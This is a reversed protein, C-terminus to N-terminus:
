GCGSGGFEIQVTAAEDVPRTIRVLYRGAELEVEVPFPVEDVPEEVVDDYIDVLIPPSGCGGECRKLEIGDAQAKTGAVALVYYTGANEIDLTRYTWIEGDRPGLVDDGECVVDVDVSIDEDPLCHDFLPVAVGCMAEANRYAAQACTPTAAYEAQLESFGGAFDAGLAAEVEEASAGFDVTDILDMAASTGMETDLFAVFHGALAYYGLPLSGDSSSEIAEAPNGEPEGRGPGRADDGLFEALGEELFPHSFGVEAHVAHVLEHEQPIVRSFVEQNENTCAVLGESEGSKCRGSLPLEGSDAGYYYYDVLGNGPTALQQQLAGILADMYVLNGGCVSDLDGGARLHEGEWAIAPLPEEHVDECAATTVVCLAVGLVHGAAHRRHHTPHSM